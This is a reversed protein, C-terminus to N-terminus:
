STETQRAVVYGGYLCMKETQKEVNQVVMLYMTGLGGGGPMVFEEDERANERPPELRCDALVVYM